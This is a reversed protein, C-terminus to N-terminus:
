YLLAPSDSQSTNSCMEIIFKLSFSRNLIYCVTGDQASPGLVVNGFLFFSM